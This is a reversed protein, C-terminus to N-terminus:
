RVLTSTGNGAPTATSWSFLMWTDAKEIEGSVPPPIGPMSLEPWTHRSRNQAVATRRAQRRDRRRWSLFRVLAAEAQEIRSLEVHEEPSTRWTRIGSASTPWWRRVKDPQIRGKRSLFCRCSHM